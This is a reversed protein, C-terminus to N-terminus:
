KNIKTVEIDIHSYWNIYRTGWSKVKHKLQRKAIEREEKTWDKRDVLEDIFNLTAKRAKKENSYVGVLRTSLGYLLEPEDNYYIVTYVKM